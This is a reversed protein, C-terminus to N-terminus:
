PRTTGCAACSSRRGSCSMPWNVTWMPNGCDIGSDPLPVTQGPQGAIESVQDGFQVVVRFRTVAGPLDTTAENTLLALPATGPGGALLPTIPEEWLRVVRYRFEHYAQGDAGLRTYLGTLDSANAEPRLLLVVSHVPEDRTHGLLVNYRLLRAPMGLSSKAEMELHIMAPPPGPLRFVKDAQATVSLDTDIVTAPGGPSLGLKAALFAAWDDPCADILRNLTADFPKSM